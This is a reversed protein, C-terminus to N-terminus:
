VGKTMLSDLGKKSATRVDVDKDQAAIMLLEKAKAGGIKALAYATLERTRPVPDYLTIELAECHQPQGLNGIIEVATQRMFPDRAYIARTILDISNGDARELLAQSLKRQDLFTRDIYEVLKDITLAGPIKLLNDFAARRLVEPYDGAELIHWLTEKSRSDGLAGLINIIRLRIEDTTSVSLVEVLPPIAIDGYNVISNLATDRVSADPDEFAAKLVYQLTGPYRTRGFARITGARVHPPGSKLMSLLVPPIEDFSGIDLLSNVAYVIELEKSEPKLVAVLPAIARKDGCKGLSRIAFERIEHSTDHMSAILCPVTQASDIESLVRIASLRVKADADQLAAVLQPVSEADKPLAGITEVRMSSAIWDIEDLTKEMEHRFKVNKRQLEATIARRIGPDGGSQEYIKGIIQRAAKKAEDHVLKEHGPRPAEAQLLNILHPLGISGKSIIWGKVIDWGELWRFHWERDYTTGHGFASINQVIANLARAEDLKVLFLSANRIDASSVKESAGLLVEVGEVHGLQALAVAAKYDVRPYPPNSPDYAKRVIQVLAEVAENDGIGRLAVVAVSNGSLAADCLAPIAITLRFKGLLAAAFSNKHNSRLVAILAVVATVGREKLADYFANIDGHDSLDFETAEYNPLSAIVADLATSDPIHGLAWIVSRDITPRFSSRDYYIRPVLKPIARVSGIKGLVEILDSNAGGNNGYKELHELIAVVSREGAQELVQLCLSRFKTREGCIHRFSVIVPYISEDDLQALAELVVEALRDHLKPSSYTRLSAVLPVIIRSDRTEGLKKASEIVKRPDSLELILSQFTGESNM